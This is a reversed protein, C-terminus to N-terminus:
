RKTHRHKQRRENAAAAEDFMARLQASRQKAKDEETVPVQEIRYFAYMEALQRSDLQRLM